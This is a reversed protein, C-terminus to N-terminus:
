ADPPRARLRRIAELQVVDALDQPRGAARKMAILDDLSAVRIEAGGIITTASRPLMEEFPPAGDPRFLLDIRGEDTDLTLITTRRLTRGDAVFPVDEDLGCLRANVAQLVAGLRALNEEDTAYVIDLDKTAREHGQVIVAVGGVVIFVVEAASLRRLLEEPRFEASGSM